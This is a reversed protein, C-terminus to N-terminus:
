ANVALALELSENQIRLSEHLLQATTRRKRSAKAVLREATACARHLFRYLEFPSQFLVQLWRDALAQFHRILKLGRLERRKKAWLRTRLAYGAVTTAIPASRSAPQEDPGEAAVDDVSLTPVVVYAAAM